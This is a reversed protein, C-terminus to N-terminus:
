KVIEKIPKNKIEEFQKISNEEIKQLSSLYIRNLTNKTANKESDIMKKLDEKFKDEHLYQDAEVVIKDTAFWGVVGGIVGGVSSCL